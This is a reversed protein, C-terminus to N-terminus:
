FVIKEGRQVRRAIEAREARTLSSVDNRVIAASQSSTGNESPRSAKQKIRAQAQADATQAAVRAANQTIEDLHLTRYAHEVGVGSKLLKLFEPNQAERAFNFSPYLEKVKDAERYWTNIQEEAQKQGIERRRMAMLEENERKLKEMAHYQEVTMGKEEAVREWYETDETLARDLQAVDNVGYRAMLKDLIPKQAALDAEMGKVQKFRRDFVQQFREQDLDKYEGNILDNYAKRRAELTDSTISVDTKSAGTLQGETAPTTAETATTGEQKGFVVNDFEGSKSRRNSGSPKSEVKPANETATAGSGEAGAAGGDNFLQLDVKFMRKLVEPM